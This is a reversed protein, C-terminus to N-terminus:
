PIQIKRVLFFAPIKLQPTSKFLALVGRGLLNDLLKSTPIFFSNMASPM